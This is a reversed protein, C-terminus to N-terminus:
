PRIPSVGDAATALCASPAPSPPLTRVPAHPLSRGSAAAIPDVEVAASRM